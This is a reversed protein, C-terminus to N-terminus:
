VLDDDEEGLLNYEQEVLAYEGEDEIEDLTVEDGDEAYHFFTVNEEDVIDGSVIPCIACYDMGNMDFVATIAFEQETGDELMLTIADLEVEEYEEPRINEESM